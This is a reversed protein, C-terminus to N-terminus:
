LVPAAATLRWHGDIRSFTLAWPRLTDTSAAVSVARPDPGEPADCAPERTLGAPLRERVRADPVLSALAADNGAALAALVDEVSRHLTQHWRDFQRQSTRALAAGNPASRFVDEQETQHECGPIWGPYHLEYRLRVEGPRVRWDRVFLPGPFVDGTSWAIEVDEGREHLLELRLQRTGRGTPAGEWAVLFQATGDRLAPFPYVGPRGDRRLATLLGMEGRLPGYVRLSSADPGDGLQFAGVTLRGVRTLRLTAGGWAEAFGDLRDQLFPLSAFVGGSALSEVVEDDLLAFIERYTERAQEADVVQVLGLRTQAIARFRDLRDLAGASASATAALLACGAVTTSLV